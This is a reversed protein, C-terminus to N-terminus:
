HKQVFYASIMRRIPRTMTWESFVLPSLRQAVEQARASCHRKRRAHSPSIANRRRAAPRSRGPRARSAQPRYGLPAASAPVIRSAIIVFSDALHQRKVDVPQARPAITQETWLAGPSPRIRKIPTFVYFLANDSTIRSANEGGPPTTAAPSKASKPGSKRGLPWAGRVGQDKAILWYVSLAPAPTSFPCAPFCMALPSFGSALEAAPGPV